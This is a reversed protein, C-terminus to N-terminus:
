ILKKIKEILKKAYFDFGCDDPHLRGDAYLDENEPVLDRGSVVFVNDLSSVCERICAEVDSFEGFKTKENLDKRWIPTIAFIKADPYGKSLSAYFDRCKEMFTERTVNSWDNTGYAVSIYDARHSPSAKALPPFFCEGGIGKCIEEAGLADALIAAYRNKPRKADYGQTISDGYSILIKEEREPEFSAGDDLELSAIDATVSWPLYISVTKKGEGLEFRESFEGFPLTVGTYHKPLTVGSFNDIYGVTEGDKVVDCSFYSRTRASDVRLDLFLEKSDTKFVLRIAATAFTKRYHLDLKSKYINEEEETFRFLRVAGDREECRVAGRAASMIEEKTLIM